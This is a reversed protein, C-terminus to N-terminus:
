DLSHKNALAQIGPMIAQAAQAMAAPEQTVDIDPGCYTLWQESVYEPAVLLDSGAAKAEAAVTDLADLWDQPGKLSQGLNTAWLTISVTDTM